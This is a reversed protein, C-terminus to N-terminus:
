LPWEFRCHANSGVDQDHEDFRAPRAEAARDGSGVHALWRDHDQAFWESPTPAVVHLPGDGLM